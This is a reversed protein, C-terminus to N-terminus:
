IWRRGIDLLMGVCFLVGLNGNMTFFRMCDKSSNLDVTLIQWSFHLAGLGITVTFYPAGNGNLIGAALLCGIFSAAFSALIPRNYDAFLVATSKVGANVDDQRDQCAYITDFYVTWCISGLFILPVITWDISGTMDVWATPAGWAIAVGLFAQPWYTWRKMFPYLFDIPFLALLSLVLVDRGEPALVLACLIIHVFLLIYAGRFTVEGSALPRSKSREVKQDFEVDCIDNWVCAGSHRITMWLFYQAIKYAVHQPTIDPSRLASMLIAFACPWYVVLTGIPFLHLRTLKFYLRWAPLAEKKEKQLGTPPLSFNISSYNPATTAM